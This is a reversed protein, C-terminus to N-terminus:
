LVRWIQAQVFGTHIRMGTDEFYGSALAAKVIDENESWNKIIVENDELPVGPLNCTLMGFPEMEADDTLLQLAPRGNSYRQVDFVTDYVTGFLNVRLLKGDLKKRIM